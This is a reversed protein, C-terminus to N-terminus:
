AAVTVGEAKEHMVRNGYVAYVEEVEGLTYRLLDVIHSTQEIFQGGSAEQKRWWSIMPMNGMWYGLAMGIKREQLCRLATATSDMYRFHYGVSTILKKATVQKSIIKVGNYSKYGYVDLRKKDDSYSLFSAPM